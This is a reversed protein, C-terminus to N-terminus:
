VPRPPSTSPSSRSWCSWSRPRGWGLGAVLSALALALAAGTVPVSLGRDHLRGAGRAVLAGALGALGVLGIASLSYCFPPASLLFTLATWFLTFTGFTAAGLVLTVPVARHSGVAQFVSRLLAPYSM